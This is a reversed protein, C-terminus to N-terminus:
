SRRRVSYTEIDYAKSLAEVQHALRQRGQSTGVSLYLRFKESKKKSAVFEFVAQLLDSSLKQGKLDRQISVNQLEASDPHAPDYLIEAIGVIRGSQRVLSYWAKGTRLFQSQLPPYAFDGGIEFRPDSVGGPEIEKLLESGPVTEPVTATGELSGEIKQNDM